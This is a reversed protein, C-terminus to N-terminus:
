RFTQRGGDSRVAADKRLPNSFFHGLFKDLSVPLRAARCELRRIKWPQPDEERAAARRHSGERLRIARESAQRNGNRNASRM